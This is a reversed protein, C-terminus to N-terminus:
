HASRMQFWGLNGRYGFFDVATVLFYLYFFPHLRQTKALLVLM